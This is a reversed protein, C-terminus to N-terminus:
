GGGGGESVRERGQIIERTFRDGNEIEEEHSSSRQAPPNRRGEGEGQGNGRLQPQRDLGRKKKQEKMNSKDEKYGREGEWMAEDTDEWMGGGGGAEGVEM